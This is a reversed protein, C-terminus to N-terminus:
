HSLHKSQNLRISKFPFLETDPGGKRSVPKEAWVRLRHGRLAVRVAVDLVRESCEVARKSLKWLFLLLTELNRDKRTLQIGRTSLRVVEFGETELLRRLTKLGMLYIHGQGGVYKWRARQLAMSYSDVNPTSIYLLGGPRLVREIDRVLARPSSAHEIVNNLHVVDFSDPEYPADSLYGHFVNHYRAAVSAPLSAVEVGCAKWGVSKAAELFAGFSCGVDLLSGNRKYPLYSRAAQTLAKMRRSNRNHEAAAELNGRTAPEYSHDQQLLHDRLRPTVYVLGCRLCRVYHFEDKEFWLAPDDAGCLDCVVHEWRPPRPLHGLSPYRDEGNRTDGHQNRIVAQYLRDPDSTLHNSSLMGQSSLNPSKIDKRM